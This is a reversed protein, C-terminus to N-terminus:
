ILLNKSHLYDLVIILIIHIVPLIIFATIITLFLELITM